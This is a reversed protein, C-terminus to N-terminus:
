RTWISRGRRPLATVTFVCMRPIQLVQLFDIEGGEVGEDRTNKGFLEKLKLELGKRGYRAL